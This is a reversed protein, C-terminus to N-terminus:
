KNMQSQFGKKTEESLYSLTEGNKHGNLWASVYLLAIIMPCVPFRIVDASFNLYVVWIATLIRSWISGGAQFAEKLFTISILILAIYDSFIFGIIDIIGLPIGYGLLLPYISGLTAEATAPVPELAKFPDGATFTSYSEIIIKLAFYIFSGASGSIVTIQPEIYPLV